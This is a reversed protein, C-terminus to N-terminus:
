DTDQTCYEGVAAFGRKLDPMAAGGVDYPALKWLLCNAPTPAANAVYRACVLESNAGDTAAVNITQAPTLAYISGANLDSSSPDYVPKQGFVVPDSTGTAVWGNTGNLADQKTGAGTVVAGTTSVTTANTNNGLTTVIDRALIAGATGGYLMLKNVGTTTIKPQLADFIRGVYTQTTVTRPQVM